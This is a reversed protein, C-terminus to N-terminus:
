CMQFHICMQKDVFGLLPALVSECNDNCRLATSNSPYTSFMSGLAPSTFRKSSAQWFPRCIEFFIRQTGMSIKFILILDWLRGYNNSIIANNSVCIRIIIYNIWVMIMIKRTCAEKLFAILLFIHLYSSNSSSGTQFSSESVNQGIDHIRGTVVLGTGWHYIWDVSRM